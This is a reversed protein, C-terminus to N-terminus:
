ARCRIRSRACGAAGEATLADSDVGVTGANASGPVQPERRERGVLEPRRRFEISRAAEIRDQESMDGLVHRFVLREGDQLLVFRQQPRAALQNQDRWLLRAEPAVGRVDCNM